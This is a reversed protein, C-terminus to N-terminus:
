GGDGAALVAVDSDVGGAVGVSQGLRTVRRVRHDDLLEVHVSVGDGGEAGVAGECQGCEGFGGGDGDVRRVDVDGAPAGARVAGVGAEDDGDAGVACGVVVEARSSCGRDRHRRVVDDEGVDDDVGGAADDRGAAGVVGDDDGAEFGGAVEVGGERGVADGGGAEVAVSESEHGCGGAVDHGVARCGERDRPEREVAVEVGAESGAARDREREAVGVGAEGPDSLRRVGPDGDTDGVDTTTGSDDDEGRGPCHVRGEPVVSGRVEIHAHAGEQGLECDPGVAPHVERPEGVLLEVVAEVCPDDREPRVAREVEGETVTSPQLLRDRPLAFKGIESSSREVLRAVHEVEDSRGLDVHFARAGTSNQHGGAGGVRELPRVRDM